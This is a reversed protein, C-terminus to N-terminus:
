VVVLRNIAPAAGFDVVDQAELVIKGAGLDDPQLAIVARGAMDQPRRRMEDGMVLAPEALGQEGVVLRALLRADGANPIGLLLGADDAFVDFLQLALPM